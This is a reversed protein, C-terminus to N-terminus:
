LLGPLREGDTVASRYVPRLLHGGRWNAGRTFRSAPAGRARQAALGASGGCRYTPASPGEIGSHACRM